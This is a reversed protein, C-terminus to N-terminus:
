DMSSNGTSLPTVTYACSGSTTYVSSYSPNQIYTCNKTISDGCTSKRIIIFYIMNIIM